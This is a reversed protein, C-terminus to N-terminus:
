FIQVEIAERRHRVRSYLLTTDLKVRDAVRPIGVTLSGDRSNKQQLTVYIFKEDCIATISQMSLM